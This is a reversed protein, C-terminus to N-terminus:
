RSTMTVAMIPMLTVMTSVMPMVEASTSPRKPPKVRMSIAEKAPAPMSPMPSRMTMVRSAAPINPTIFAAPPM